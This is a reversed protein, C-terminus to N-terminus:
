ERVGLLTNFAASLESVKSQMKQLTDKEIPTTIGYTVTGDAHYIRRNTCESYYKAEDSEDSIEESIADPVPENVSIVSGNSDKYLFM